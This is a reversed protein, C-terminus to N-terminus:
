GRVAMRESREFDRESRETKRESREVKRECCAVRVGVARDDLVPPLKRTHLM